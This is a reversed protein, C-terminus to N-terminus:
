KVKKAHPDSPEVARSGRFYLKVSKLGALDPYVALVERLNELKEEPTPEGFRASAAPRGWQILCGQATILTMESKRPDARGGLNSLDIERVALKRLLASEFVFEAARLGARVAPDEWRRGPDPPGSAIGSLEVPRACRPADAYIGPLRVGESDVVVYGNTRRVALHPQRYEFRVRIQDPFVREVATVKRVWPNAEFARGVREVLDRDFLSSSGPVRVTVVGDRDAWAPALATVVAPVTFQRRETIYSYVERHILLVVLAFAVAFLALRGQPEYQRSLARLGGWVQTPNFKWVRALFKSPM